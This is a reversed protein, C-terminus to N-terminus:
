GCGPAHRPVEPQWRSRSCCPCQLRCLLASLAVGVDSLAVVVVMTPSAVGISLIWIRCRIASGLARLSSAERYHSGCRHLAAHLPPTPGWHTAARPYEGECPRRMGKQWRHSLSHSRRSSGGFQPHHRPLLFTSAAAPTAFGLDLPLHYPRQDLTDAGTYDGRGRTGVAAPRRINVSRKAGMKTQAAPRGMEFKRKKQHINRRGGTARRKHRSDRSIGSCPLVCVRPVVRDPESSGDWAPQRRAESCEMRWPLAAPM